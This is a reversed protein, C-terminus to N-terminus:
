RWTRKTNTAVDAVSRLLWFPAVLGYVLIYAVVGLSLSGPTDSIRKGVIMFAVSGIAAISTLVIFLTLPLYFWELSFSTPILTSLVYSLPMGSTLFYTDIGTKVLQYIVIFFTILGGLIALFGLPLVILGLAGYRPNGVLKRYDTTMNRLFGSTWRTRQKVLAPVSRPAKTYVRARPASDIIYGAKQIRLAMEMDETQHGYRFGGLKVLVSRRYLSFPGPTVYLGNVAALIHRLAIGLIFEANQMRELMNAPKHVSMGPTAAAVKPNDFCSIIERMAEPAVFSDADLCGIFEADVAHDIGANIASHKGGNEKHIITIQPNGQYKDMVARTNDTSGDNVLVIELKEKPYDLALLSDVTGKITTEENWCPVIMAVKPTKLSPGRKRMERAPQSLFTVLLFAQFYIAAFLFPYIAVEFVNM